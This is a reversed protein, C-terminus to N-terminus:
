WPVINGEHNIFSGSDARTTSGIARLMGAVSQEVGIPADVGGMDTKVWGPSMTIMTIRAYEFAAARVVMNLAAKSARYLWGDGSQLGGISGMGSSIFVFRGDAAEVMPALLPVAQIAGLVNTHMVLDFDAAGPSQTPGIRPGYVGAVYLVLDLAVGDMQWGLAALSEPQTVDLKIGAAGAANLEAVAGADRATAFVQWGEDLLQRAFERGIGRSAGIVLAVPM